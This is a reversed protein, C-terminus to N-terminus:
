VFTDKGDGIKRRCGQKVIDQASLISRWMYSPNNGLKANLFYTRPFYRAKMISTVFSNEGNVLRWGQKALMALNFQRLDKYGLGGNEKAECMRGWAMWKVGKSHGGNGWWFKNMQRQIMNCIKAPITLLNMWFNPVVQGSTKLLTCKGAKSM